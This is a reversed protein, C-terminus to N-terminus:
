RNCERRRWAKRDRRCHRPRTPMPPDSERLTSFSAGLTTGWSHPPFDPASPLPRGQPSRLVASTRVIFGKASPSELRGSKQCRRSRPHNKSAIYAPRLRIEAQEIRGLAGEHFHGVLPVDTVLVGAEILDDLVEDAARLRLNGGRREPDGPRHHVITNVGAVQWPDDIARGQRLLQSQLAYAQQVIQFRRSVTYAHHLRDVEFSNVRTYRGLLSMPGHDGCPRSQSLGYKEPVARLVQGHGCLGAVGIKSRVGILVGVQPFKDLATVLERAGLHNKGAPAKPGDM